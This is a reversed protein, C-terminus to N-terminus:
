GNNEEVIETEQIPPEGCVRNIDSEPKTESDVLDAKPEEEDTKYPLPIQLQDEPITETCIIEKTDPDFM